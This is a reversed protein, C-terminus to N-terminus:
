ANDLADAYAEVEAQLEVPNRGLRLAIMLVPYSVKEGRSPHASQGSVRVLSLVAEVGPTRLEPFPYSM